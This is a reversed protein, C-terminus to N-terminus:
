NRGWWYAEQDVVESDPPAQVKYRVGALLDFPKMSKVHGDMFGVNMLGNHRPWAGGYQNYNCASGPAANPDFYWGQNWSAPNNGSGDISPPDAWYYGGQIPSCGPYTGSIWWTTSDVGLIMHAPRAIAGLSVGPRVDNPYLNPTPSLYVYNYGFNTQFGRSFDIGAQSNCFSASNPTVGNGALCNSLYMQDNAQGDSPCRFLNWNKIYTQILQPWTLAQADGGSDGRHGAWDAGPPVSEDYDQVYMLVGLTIQKCNSLCVTKRAQERAQAFVPFLIAALIAIIAIVVLLEILTFGRRNARRSHFGGSVLM